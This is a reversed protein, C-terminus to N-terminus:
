EDEDEPEAALELYKEAVRDHRSTLHAIADDMWDEVDEVGAPSNKTAYEALTDKLRTFMGSQPNATAGNVECASAVTNVLLDFIFDADDDSLEAEAALRDANIYLRYLNNAAWSNHNLQDEDEAIFTPLEDTISDRKVAAMTKTEKVAADLTGRDTKETTKTKKSHGSASTSPKAVRKSTRPADQDSVEPDTIDEPKATAAELLDAGTPMNERVPDLPTMDAKESLGIEAKAAAPCMQVLPCWGCLPSTKLPFVAADAYNNHMKWASTLERRVRKLARPSVDIEVEKGVRTFYLSAASVERGTMEAYALAYVQMQYKYDPRFPGGVGKVAKGAKYDICKITGDDLEDVRDIFGSIPVGDVVVGDLKIESGVQTVQHPDEIDYIGCALAWLHETLEQAEVYAEGVVDRGPHVAPGIEDDTFGLPPDGLEAIRISRGTKWRYLAYAAASGTIKAVADSAQGQLLQYLRRQTREGSDLNYFDELAGHVLTGAGAPSWPDDERPLLKEVAWKGACKGALENMTSPSLRERRVQGEVAEPHITVAGVDFTVASALSLDKLETLM